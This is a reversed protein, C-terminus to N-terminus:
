ALGPGAWGFLFKLHSSQLTQTFRQFEASSRYRSSLGGAHAGHIALEELYKRVLLYPAHINSATQGTCTARKAYASGDFYQVEISWVAGLDNCSRDAFRRAMGTSYEVTFIQTGVALEITGVPHTGNGMNNGYVVGTWTQAGALSVCFLISTLLLLPM